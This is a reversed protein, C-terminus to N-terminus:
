LHAERAGMLISPGNSRMGRFPENMRGRQGLLLTGERAAWSFPRDMVRTASRRASRPAPRRQVSRRCAWWVRRTGARDLDRDRVRVVLAGLDRRDPESNDPAGKRPGAPPPGADM